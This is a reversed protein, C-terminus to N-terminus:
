IHKPTKNFKKLWWDIYGAQRDKRTVKKKIKISNFFDERSISLKLGAVELEVEDLKDYYDKFLLYQYSNTIVTGTLNKYNFNLLLSNHYLSLEQQYNYITLGLEKYKDVLLSHYENQCLATITEKIRTDISVDRYTRKIRKKSLDIESLDFDINKVTNPLKINFHNTSDKFIINEIDKDSIDLRNDLKDECRNERFFIHWISEYYYLVKDKIFLDIINNYDKKVFYFFSYDSIYHKYEGFVQKFNNFDVLKFFDNDIVGEIEYRNGSIKYHYFKIIMNNYRIGIRVEWGKDFGVGSITGKHIELIIDTNEDIVQIYRDFCNKATLKDFPIKFLTHPYYPSNDTIEIERESVSSFFDGKYSIGNKRLFPSSEIDFSCFNGTIIDNITKAVQEM